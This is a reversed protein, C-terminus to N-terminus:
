DLTVPRNKLVATDFVKILKLINQVQDSCLADNQRLCQWAHSPMVTGFDFDNSKQWFSLPIPITM